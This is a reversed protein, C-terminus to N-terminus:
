KIIWKEGNWKLPHTKEDYKDSKSLNDTAWLPQLNTYHFCKMREEELELNFSACPRIHDIHWEGKNKWTMGDKFQKELHNYLTKKDCGLYEITHKDKKSNLADRIRVGQLETLYSLPNCIVCKRPTKNHECKYNKKYEKIKDKNNEYYEKKYEKIKDKNEQYYQKKIQKIKDKNKERWEKMKDKNKEIYKKNQQKIKDKHNERYEKKKQRIKDKNKERYEKKYQRLKDKNKEYYEKKNQRIKDKNKESDLRGNKWIRPEGKYIYLTNDTRDKTKPLEKINCLRCKLFDM